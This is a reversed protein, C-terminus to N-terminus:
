SERPYVYWHAGDGAEAAQLEQLGHAVREMFQTMGIRATYAIERGM